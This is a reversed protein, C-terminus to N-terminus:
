HRKLISDFLQPKIGLSVMRTLRVRGGQVLVLKGMRARGMKAPGVARPSRRVRPARGRRLSLRRLLPALFPRSETISQLRHTRDRGRGVSFAPPPAGPRPPSRNSPGIPSALLASMWPELPLAPQSATLFTPILHHRDVASSRSSEEERGVRDAARAGGPRASGEVRPLSFM